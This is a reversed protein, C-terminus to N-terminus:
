SHISVFQPPHFVDKYFSSSFYPNSFALMQKKINLPSIQFAVDQNQLYNFKLLNEIDTLTYNGNGEENVQIIISQLYCQGYCMVSADFKNVCWKDAIESQNIKFYSYVALNRVSLFLILISLSIALFQKM